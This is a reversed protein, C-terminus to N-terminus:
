AGKRAMQSLVFDQSHPQLNRFAVLIRNVALLEADMATPEAVSPQDHSRIVPTAVKRERHGHWYLHAGLAHTTRFSRNCGHRTCHHWGHNATPKPTM